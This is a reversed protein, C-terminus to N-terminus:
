TSMASAAFQGVGEGLVAGDHGGVYEVAFLRFGHADGHNAGEHFQAPHGKRDLGKGAFDGGQLLVVVGMEADHEVGDALEHGRGIGRAAFDAEVGASEGRGM